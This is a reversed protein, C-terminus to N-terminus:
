RIPIQSKLVHKIFPFRFRFEDISTECLPGIIVRNPTIGPRITDGLTVYKKGDQNSIPKALTTRCFKPIAFGLPFNFIRAEREDIFSPDKHTSCYVLFKSLFTADYSIEQDRLLFREDNTRIYIFRLLNIFSQEVMGKYDQSNKDVGYSIDAIGIKEFSYFSDESHILRAVDDHSFQLCFGKNKTYRDWLSLIGHDNEEENRGKAFSTIYLSGYGRTEASHKKLYSIYESLFGNKIATYSNERFSQPGIHAFVWEIADLLINNAAYGFESTDNLSLYETSRLSNERLIGILGTESTYHSLTDM